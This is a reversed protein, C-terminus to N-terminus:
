SRPYASEETVRKAQLFHRREHATIIRVADLASYTVIGLVPSTIIIVQLPLKGAARILSFLQQQQDLFSEIIQ